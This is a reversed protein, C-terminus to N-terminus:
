LGASGTRGRGWYCIVWYCIVIEGFWTEVRARPNLLRGRLHCAEEFVEEVFDGVFGLDVPVFELGVEDGGIETGAEGHGDHVFEPAETAFDGGFVDDGGGAGVDGFDKGFVLFKRGGQLFGALGGDEEDDADVAGSFGSGGGFETVKEADVTVGHADRGGIGEAGGGNFLQLGPGLAEVEGDGGAVMLGVGSGNTVLGMFGGDGLVGFVEDAVGGTAEVGTVVQHFFQAFDAAGKGLLVVGGGVLGDEDDIGAGAGVGKRLRLFEVFGGLEVAEDDGLEVTGAFAADGNGNLLFEADGGEEDAGAFFRVLELGELAFAEDGVDELRGTKLTRASRAAKSLGLTERKRM